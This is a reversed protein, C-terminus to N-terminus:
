NGPIDKDNGDFGYCTRGLREIFPWFHTCRYINAIQSKKSITETLEENVIIDEDEIEHPVLVESNQYQDDKGSGRVFTIYEVGGSNLDQHGAVFLLSFLGGKTSNM